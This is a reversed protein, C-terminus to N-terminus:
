IQNMAYLIGGHYFPVASGGFQSSGGHIWVLVANGNVNSRKASPSWINLNLCDDGTSFNGISDIGGVSLQYTYDIGKNQSCGLGFQTANFIQDSPVVDARQPPRFRRSGNTSQGSPIGLWTRVGAASEFGQFAGVNTHVLQQNATTNAAACYRLVLSALVFIYKQLRMAAPSM